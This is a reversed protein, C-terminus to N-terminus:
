LIRITYSYSTFVYKQKEHDNLYLPSFKESNIRLSISQFFVGEKECARINTPRSINNVNNESIPAQIKIKNNM